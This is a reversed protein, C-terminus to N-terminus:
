HSKGRCPSELLFLSTLPSDRSRRINNLKAVLPTRKAPRIRLACRLIELVGQLYIGGRWWVVALLPAAQANGEKNSAQVHVRLLLPLLPLLLWTTDAMLRSGGCCSDMSEANQEPFIFTLHQM